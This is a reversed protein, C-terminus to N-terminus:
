GDLFPPDKWLKRYTWWLAFGTSHGNFDGRYEWQQQNFGMLDWQQQYKELLCIVIEVPYIVM